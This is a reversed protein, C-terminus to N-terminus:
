DKLYTYFDQLTNISSVVKLKSPDFIMYTYSSQDGTMKVVSAEEKFKVSDYGSSVIKEVFKNTDLLWWIDRNALERKNSGNYDNYIELGLKKIDIPMKLPNTLDLTNQISACAALVSYKGNESRNNGFFNAMKSSDTMFIGKNDVVSESGMFGSRRGKGVKFGNARIDSSIESTTGHYLLMGGAKCNPNKNINTIYNLVQTKDENSQSILYKEFEEYTNFKSLTNILTDVSEKLIQNYATKLKM